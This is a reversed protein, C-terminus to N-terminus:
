IDVPLLSLECITIRWGDISPYHMDALLQQQYVVRENAKPRPARTEYLKITYKGSGFQISAFVSARQEALLNQNAEVGSFM